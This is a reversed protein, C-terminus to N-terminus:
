MGAGGGDFDYSQRQEDFGDNQRQEDFGDSAM